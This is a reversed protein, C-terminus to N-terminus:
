RRKASRGGRPKGNKSKRKSFAEGALPIKAKQLGRVGSASAARGSNDASALYRSYEESIPNDRVFNEIAETDDADIPNNRLKELPGGKAWLNELEVGKRAVDNMLHVIINRCDVVIWEDSERGEAGLEAGIVGMKHLKRERMSRVIADSMTRLHGGNMGTAIVMFKGMNAEKPLPVTRVGQGGLGELCGAVEKSSLLMHMKVPIEGNLLKAAAADEPKMMATPRITQKKSYAWDPIDDDNNAVKTKPSVTVNKYKDITEQVQASETADLQKLLAQIGANDNVDLGDGAVEDLFPDEKGQAKLYEDFAKNDNEEDDDFNEFGLLDKPDIDLEGYGDEDADPDFDESNVDIGYKKYLMDENLHMIGNKEVIPVGNIDSEIEGKLESYFEKLMEDLSGVSIPGDKIGLDGGYNLKDLDIDKNFLHKDKELDFYTMDDPIKGSELGEFFREETEEDAKSKAELELEREFEEEGEESGSSYVGQDGSLPRSPPIWEELNPDSSHGSGEDTGKTDSSFCVAQARNWSQFRRCPEAEGWFGAQSSPVVYKRQLRSAQSIFARRFNVTIM